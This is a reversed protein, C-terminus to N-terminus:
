FPVRIKPVVWMAVHEHRGRGTLKFGQDMIQGLGLFTNEMNNVM